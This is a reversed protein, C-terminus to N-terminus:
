SPLNMLVVKLCFPKSIWNVVKLAKNHSITRCVPVEINRRSIWLYNVVKVDDWSIKKVRECCCIAV